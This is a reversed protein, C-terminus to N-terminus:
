ILFKIRGPVSAVSLSVPTLKPFAPRSKKCTHLLLEEIVLSSSQKSLSAQYLYLVAGAVLKLLDPFSSLIVLL